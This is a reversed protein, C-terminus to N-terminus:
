IHYEVDMFSFTEVDFLGSDLLKIKPIVPLSMFCLTMVADIEPNVGLREHALEFIHHLQEDVWPASQDSMLGAIPLPMAALIERDVVLVIGGKQAELAQIARCMDANNTGAVILNHSDHAISTAVAGRKLGYNRLLGVGVNGQGGHREVVALKVIDQDPTYVFDGDKDITVEATGKDTVVSGPIIDMTNVTHSTLHLKLRDQSFDTLHVSSGVASYDARSFDPLYVGDKAALTGGIWTQVAKFRDLDELLVIDARKGPTLAGRDTLGYCEAANLTAMTLAALPTLGGRVCLRLLKNLHGREFISEPHLDDSCLLCHRLNATTVAPLLHPLNHCASGYRLLVYMGLTLRERAEKATSCEHDTHIGAAAYGTLGMGVLGPSHGDVLKRAEHAAVLKDLTSDACSLIHPYDMFEGLGAVGHWQLAKRIDAADISAGAHDVDTAPVCSPVMYKIDLVTHKAARIMYELGTLGCVNVIEHPDAMVTTTGYPVLLRGFEEPTLYSSEIHIHSDILGPAAYGGQADIEQVGVYPGGIGAILGDAIAIDGDIVRQNIVDVIHCGKLVIDAPMAGQAISIIKKLTKKDTIPM